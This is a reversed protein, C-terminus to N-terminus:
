SQHPIAVAAPVTGADSNLEPTRKVSFPALASSRPHASMALAVSLQRAEQPSVRWRIPRDPYEMVVQGAETSVEIM